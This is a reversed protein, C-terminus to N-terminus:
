DLSEPRPLDLVYGNRIRDVGAGTLATWGFRKDAHNSEFDVLDYLDAVTVVGYQSLLAYMQDIVNTAAVRTEIVIEDFDFNNRAKRSLSPRPDERRSSRHRDDSVRNYAFDGFAGGSSGGRRGRRSTSRAEGYIMREAGQSVADALMDKAAPLLVDILVFAAVGKADGGGFFEAAKKGLPKKRRTVGETVVPTIKPKPAVVTESVVTTKKVHQQSNSPFENDM